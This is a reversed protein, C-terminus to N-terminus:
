LCQSQVVVLGRGFWSGSVLCLGRSCDRSLPIRGINHISERELADLITEGKEVNVYAKVANGGPNVRKLFTVRYANALFPYTLLLIKFLKM